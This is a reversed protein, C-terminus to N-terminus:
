GFLKLYRPPNFFHTVAFNHKFDDSRGENMQKIPIGSTNSTVLTGPSRHKEIQEFVIQKIKLKETVVEIIWDVKSIKEIDDSLNGLEIRNAFNKHYLPSPKSKVCRQFMDSVIRNRVKKDSLSLGLEKKKKTLNM